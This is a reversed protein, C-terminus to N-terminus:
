EYLYAVYGEITAGAPISNGRVQAAVTMETRSYVDYKIGTGFAAGNVASSVDMGDVLADLEEAQLDEGVQRDYARFGIDLTRGGGFASTSVRSLGPLIRKAGQPLKCLNAESNVDGAAAGQTFSFYAFRLKGHNDTPRGRYGEALQASDEVTVAM